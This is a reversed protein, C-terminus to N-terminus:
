SDLLTNLWFEFQLNQLQSFSKPEFRASTGASNGPAPGQAAAPPRLHDGVPRAHGVVEPTAREPHQGARADPRRVRGAMPSDHAQRPM